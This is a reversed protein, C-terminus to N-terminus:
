LSRRHARQIFFHTAYRYWAVTNREYLNRLTWVSRMAWNYFKAGSAHIGPLFLYDCGVSYQPICNSIGAQSVQKQYGLGWNMTTVYANFLTGCCTLTSWCAFYVYANHIGNTLIISVTTKILRSVEDMISTFPLYKREKYFLNTSHLAWFDQIGMLIEHSRYFMCEKFGRCFKAAHIYRVIFTIM